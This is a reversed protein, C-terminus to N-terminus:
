VAATTAEHSSRAPALAPATGRPWARGLAVGPTGFRPSLEPVVDITPSFRAASQPDGAGADGRCLASHAWGDLSTPAEGNRRGAPEARRLLVRRTRGLPWSRRNAGG